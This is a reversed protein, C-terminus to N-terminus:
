RRATASCTSGRTDEVVQLTLGDDEIALDDDLTPGLAQLYPHTVDVGSDIVAVKVGDGESDGLVRRLEDLTSRASM